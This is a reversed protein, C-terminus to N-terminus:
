SVRKMGEHAIELTEVAIDTGKANLDPADYKTPWAESFEWRSVNNGEEDLLIIAIEQRAESMKGDEVKKRWDFLEMSSDTIGWKLTLNGYKILGPIKRVTPAEDGERYEIPDQATDPITAESFGAQNIGGVELIFRCNRYPDNRDAM